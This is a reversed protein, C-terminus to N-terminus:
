PAECRRKLGQAEMEMYRRILKSTWPRFLRALLGVQQVTLTVMTGGRGDAVVRHGATTTVGLGRTEWAFWHGPGWATVRWVMPLLRPQRIHAQSGAGFAGEDLRRVSTMSATWEPWREVDALVAWVQEPAADIEVTVELQM